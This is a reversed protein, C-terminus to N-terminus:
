LNITLLLYIILIIKTIDGKKEKIYVNKNNRLLNKKVKKYKENYTYINM